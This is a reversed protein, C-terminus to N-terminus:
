DYDREGHRIEVVGEEVLVEEVEAAGGRGEHAEGGKALVGRPVVVHFVDVEVGEGEEFGFAVEVELADGALDVGASPGRRRWSPSLVGGGGVRQRPLAWDFISFRFDFIEVVPEEPVAGAFDEESAEEGGGVAFAAGAVGKNEERVDDVEGKGGGEFGKGGVDVFGGTGGTGGGGGVGDAADEGFSAGAEVGEGLAGGVVWGREGGVEAGGDGGSAPSAEVVGEFGLEV